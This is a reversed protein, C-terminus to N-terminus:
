NYLHVNFTASPQGPKLTYIETTKEETPHILYIRCEGSGATRRLTFPLLLESDSHKHAVTDTSTWTWASSEMDECLISIRRTHRDTIYATHRSDFDATCETNNDSTEIVITFHLMSQARRSSNSIACAAYNKTQKM